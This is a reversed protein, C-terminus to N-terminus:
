LKFAQAMTIYGIPQYGATLIAVDQAPDDEMAMMAATKMDAMVKNKIEMKDLKNVQKDSLKYLQMAIRRERDAEPDDADIDGGDDEADESGRCAAM